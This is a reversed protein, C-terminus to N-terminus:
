EKFLEPHQEILDAIEPFTQGSDNARILSGFPADDLQGYATQMGLWRVVGDPLANDAYAFNEGYLIYGVRPSTVKVVGAEVALKCAVGLCCHQEEGGVISTLRHKGQKYKGSRLALVWKKANENM